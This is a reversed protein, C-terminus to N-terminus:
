TNIRVLPLLLNIFKAYQIFCKVQQPLHRQDQGGQPDPLTPGNSTHTAQQTNNVLTNTSMQQNRQLASQYAM